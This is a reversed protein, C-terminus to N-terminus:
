SKPGVTQGALLGASGIKVNPDQLRKLSLQMVNEVTETAIDSLEKGLTRCEDVRGQAATDESAAEELQSAVKGADKSFTALMGRMKHAIERVRRTDATELAQELAALHEPMRSCFTQCMKALLAEDGGCTALITASDLAVHPEAIEGNTSTAPVVSGMLRDITAWLDDPRFPKTLFEDMGAALCKDRHEPMHIDLILLDFASKELLGLAERGDAALVAHHGRRVLLHEILQANFENDEAV